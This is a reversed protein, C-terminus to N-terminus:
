TGTKGIVKDIQGLKTEWQLPFDNLIEVYDGINYDQTSGNLTITNDGKQFGSIITQPIGISNGSIFIAKGKYQDSFSLRTKDSGDGKLCINSYDKVEDNVMSIGGTLFYNGQPFYVIAYHGPNASIYVRAAEIANQISQSDEAGDSPFAGYNIVNFVKNFSTPIQNNGVNHWDVRRDTPITPVYDPFGSSQAVLNNISFLFTIIPLLIKLKKM